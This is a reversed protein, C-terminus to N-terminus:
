EGVFDAYEPYGVTKYMSRVYDYDSDKIKPLFKMGGYKQNDEGVLIAKVLEPAHNQFVERMKELVKADVHSGAMLMDNPLDPGRAIVRFAGPDLSKEKDRMALFKDTTTGMAAVDGRILSSWGVKYDVYLPKVDKLPELGNDALVQMPGLHKSTSGIEGVAVRKGKLQSVSTIGSDALVIISSFYDPRSFGVVPTANTRKKMVVYEAPGTVVFDVRKARLAEAAATRNNVPFFEFDYGTHRSLVEKFQGFERQLEEMGELDTVALTFKEAAFSLSSFMVCCLMTVLSIRIKM